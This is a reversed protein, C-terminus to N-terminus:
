TEALNTSVKRTKDCSVSTKSSINMELLLDSVQEIVDKFGKLAAYVSTAISLPDAMSDLGSYDLEDTQSALSHM